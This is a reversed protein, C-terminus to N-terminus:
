RDMGRDNGQNERERQLKGRYSSPPTPDLPNIPPTAREYERIREQIFKQGEQECIRLALKKFKPNQLATKFKEAQSYHLERATKPKQAKAIELDLATKEQLLGKIRQNSEGIDRNLDGLRSCKKKREMASAEVGLHQTPLQEIGREKHSRHDVRESSGSGALSGNILFAAYERLHAIEKAGTTNNVLERTKETLGEAGMRRTTMLIHAHYNRGDGQKSPEHLAVAVAVGYRKVLHASFQRAINEREKGSVSAPLALEWERAVQSNRRNESNEAANWLRGWDHAWAPAHDPAVIFTNEVGGRRTYDHTQNTREEHQLSVLQRADRVSRPASDRPPPCIQLHLPFM